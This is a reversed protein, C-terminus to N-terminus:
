RSAARVFPHGEVGLWNGQTSEFAPEPPTGAVFGSYLQRFASAVRRWDLSQAMAYAAQVKRNRTAEDEFVADVARAMAIPSPEALWSNTSNAYSLVGGSNCAVLPLGAAMAELPAIGYPEAPNPHIFADSCALLVALADAELRGLFIVAGGAFRKRCQSELSARLIGDGAIVLRYDQASRRQLQEFVDFLLPLNKEPALRGSYVLLASEENADVRRILTQRADITRLGPHFREVSVGMPMVWVGRRTIHGRGAERLEDATHRSVTIHHDFFGFYIWKLYLACFAKAAKSSSLYYSMNEDMRECSTGVLVPRRVGPLWGRRLLGAVYHLSYKDCIDILDPKEERLIEHLRRNVGPWANPLIMRYSANLYTVPAKISYIKTTGDVLCHDEKGPGVVIMHEGQSRAHDLLARYFTSIGGGGETQWANILHATKM